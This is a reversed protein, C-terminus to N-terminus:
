EGFQGGFGAMLLEFWYRDLRTHQDQHQIHIQLVGGGRNHVDDWGPKIGTKFVYYNRKATILDNIHLHIKFSV